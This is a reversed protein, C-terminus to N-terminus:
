RIGISLVKQLIIKMLVYEAEPVGISGYEKENKVGVMRQVWFKGEITLYQLTERREHM